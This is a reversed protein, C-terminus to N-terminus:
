SGVSPHSCGTPGLNSGSKSVDYRFVTLNCNKQVKTLLNGFVYFKNLLYSYHYIVYRVYFFSALPFLFLLMKYPKVTGVIQYPLPSFPDSYFELLFSPINLTYFAVNSPYILICFYLYINKKKDKPSFATAYLITHSFYESYNSLLPM